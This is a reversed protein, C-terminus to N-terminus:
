EIIITVLWTDWLEVSLKLAEMASVHTSIYSHRRLLEQTSTSEVRPYHLIERIPAEIILDSKDHRMELKKLTLAYNPGKM